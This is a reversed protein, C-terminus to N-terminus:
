TSFIMINIPLVSNLKKLTIHPYFKIPLITFFLFDKLKSIFTRRSRKSTIRYALRLVATQFDDVSCM